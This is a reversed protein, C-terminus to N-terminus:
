QDLRFRIPIRMQVKVKRGRQMGAEWDPMSNIVRLAERSCGGGIDKLVKSHTVEGDENVIFEVVVTGSIGNERAMAPYKINQGFYKYLAIDSCQKQEEKSMLKHECEGFRPMSEVIVFFPKEETIKEEPELIPAVTKKASATAVKVSEVLTEDVIHEVDEKLQEPIPEELFEIEEEEIIKEAKFVPPPLKKAEEQKTRIVPITHEIQVEEIQPVFSDDEYITWNFALIFISLSCILGIKFYISRNRELQSIDTRKM